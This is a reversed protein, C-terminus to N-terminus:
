YDYLCTIRSPQTDGRLPKFSEKLLFSDSNTKKIKQENKRM